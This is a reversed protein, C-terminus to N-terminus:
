GNDEGVILHGLGLVEYDVLLYGEPGETVAWPHTNRVEQAIVGRFRTTQGLYNFEHIRIGDITDVHKLNEKLREDSFLTLLGGIGSFIAGFMSGGSQSRQAAAASRAQQAMGAYSTAKQLEAQVDIQGQIGLVAKALAGERVSSRFIDGASGSLVDFGAGAVQAQQKGLTKDIQRGLQYQKINTGIAALRRSIRAAEDYSGASAQSGAALSSAASSGFLSSVANSFLPLAGGFNLDGDAM